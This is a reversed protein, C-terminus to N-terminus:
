SRRQRLINVKKRLNSDGSITFSDISSMLPELVNPLHSEAFSRDYIVNEQMWKPRKHITNTSRPDNFGTNECIRFLPLYNIFDHKFTMFQMQYDWTLKPNKRVKEFRTLWTSQQTATLRQWSKSNSLQRELNGDPLVLEYKDWTSRGVMWGWASFYRSRRWHNRFQTNIIPVGSFGGITGFNEKESLESYGQCLKSVFSTGIRIDDEIIVVSEEEELVSSIAWHIHQSLGLNSNQRWITVNNGLRSSKVKDEVAKLVERSIEQDDCKDLSIYLHSVSNKEIESIRQILNDPRNYGILLASTV